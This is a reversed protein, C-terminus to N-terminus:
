DKYPDFEDTGAMVVGAPHLVHLVELTEEHAKLVGDLKRYVQPAEDPGAGKLHVGARRVAAQMAELSIQGGQRRKTKWNMKGAAATRSMIRGAGHVTSTLAQISEPADVGRVIVSIDAMSGGIFGLQGPRCPTAGKRIVLLDAGRHKERWAFNHHNHVAFTSRAGLISLVQEVVIDRGPVAISIVGDHANLPLAALLVPLVTAPRMMAHSHYTGGEGM